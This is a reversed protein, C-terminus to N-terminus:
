TVGGWQAEATRTPDKPPLVFTTEALNFEAAIAQMRQTSLGQANTVVALPNGTLPEVAFVDVLHFPRAVGRQSPPGRLFPSTRPPRALPCPPQGSQYGRIPVASFTKAPVQRQKPVRIRLRMVVRSSQEALM